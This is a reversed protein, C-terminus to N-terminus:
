NLRLAVQETCLGKPGKYKIETIYLVDDKTMGKVAEVLKACEGWEGKVLIGSNSTVWKLGTVPVTKNNRTDLLQLSCFQNLDDASVKDDYTFQKGNLLLVCDGTQQAFATYIAFLLIFAILHKMIQTKFLTNNATETTFSSM